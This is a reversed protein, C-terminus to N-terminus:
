RTALRVENLRCPAITYGCVTMMQRCYSRRGARSLHVRFIGPVPFMWAFRPSAFEGVVSQSMNTVLLRSRSCVRSVGM